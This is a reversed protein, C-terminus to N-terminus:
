QLIFRDPPPTPPSLPPFSQQAFINLKEAEFTYILDRQNKLILKISKHIYYYIYYYYYDKNRRLWNM